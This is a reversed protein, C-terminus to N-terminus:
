GGRGAALLEDTLVLKAKKIAVFPVSVESGAPKDTPTLRVADGAIGLLRGRFRKRGDVPEHTELRAEFGAFRDFDARRTLPRDIGPSSVELTYTGSVPDEVDLLASVTRSIDACDDVTMAARDAREAMVQLVPKVKGSFVVRVIEYGMDEVAPAILAEVRASRPDPSLTDLTDVTDDMRERDSAAM